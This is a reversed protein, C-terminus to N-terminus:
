HLRNLAGGPVTRHAQRPVPINHSETLSTDTCQSQWKRHTSHEYCWNGPRITEPAVTM